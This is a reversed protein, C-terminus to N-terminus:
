CTCPSLDLIVTVVYTTLLIDNPIVIFHVTICDFINLSHSLHFM